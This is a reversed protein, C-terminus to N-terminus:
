GAMPSKGDTDAERRRRLIGRVLLFPQAEQDGAHFEVFLGTDVKKFHVFTTGIRFIFDGTDISKLVPQRYEAVAKQTM